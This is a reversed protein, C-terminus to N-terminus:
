PDREARKRGSIGKQILKEPMGASYFLIIKHLHLFKDDYKLKSM